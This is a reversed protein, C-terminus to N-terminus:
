ICVEVNYLQQGIRDSLEARRQTEAERELKTQLNKEEREKMMAQFREVEDMKQAMNELKLADQLRKFEDMEKKANEKRREIELLEAEHDAKYKQLLKQMEDRDKLVETYEMKRREQSEEM